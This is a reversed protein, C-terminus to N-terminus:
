RRFRIMDALRHRFAVRLLHRVREAVVAHDDAEAVPEGDAYLWLRGNAGTDTEADRIQWTLAIRTKADRSWRVTMEADTLQVTYGQTRLVRVAVAITRDPTQDGEAPRDFAPVLRRDDPPMPTTAPAPPSALWELGAPEDFRAM